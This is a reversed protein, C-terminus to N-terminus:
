AFEIRTFLASFGLLYALCLLGMAWPNTTHGTNLLGEHVTLLVPDSAVRHLHYGLEGVGFLMLFLFGAKFVHAFRGLTRFTNYFALCLALALTPGASTRVMPFLTLGLDGLGVLLPAHGSPPTLVPTLLAWAYVAVFMAARRNQRRPFLAPVGVQEPASM